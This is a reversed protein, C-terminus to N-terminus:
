GIIKRKDNVESWCNTIFKSTNFPYYKKSFDNNDIRKKFDILDDITDIDRYKKSLGVKLNLNNAIDITSELVSINGYKIKEHFLEDYLNKMGILYYGGDFTPGITIDNEDLSNFSHIIDIHKLDPIDTGILIVKEYDKNLVFRIANSMKEGLNQGYQSFVNIYAPTMNKLIEYEDIPTYTLYIDIDKKLFKTMNFLDLLFCKHIDACKNGSIVNMLRTKTKGPIPVRTMLILANM